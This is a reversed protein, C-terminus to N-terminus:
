KVGAIIELPSIPEPVSRETRTNGETTIELKYKGTHIKYLSVKGTTQNPEEMVFTLRNSGNEHGYTEFSGAPKSLTVLYSDEHAIEAGMYKKFLEFQKRFGERGTIRPRHKLTAVM